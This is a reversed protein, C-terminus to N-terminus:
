SNRVIGNNGFIEIGDRTANICTVGDIIHGDVGLLCSMHGPIDGYMACGVTPGGPPCAPILSIDITFNKWTINDQGSQGFTTVVWAHGGGNNSPKLIPNETLYGQVFTQTNINPGGPVTGPSIKEDYTGARINLTDGGRMCAIGAAITLKA